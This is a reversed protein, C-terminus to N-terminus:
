AQEGATDVGAGAPQGTAPALRRAGMFLLARAITAKLERRDVIMDIM